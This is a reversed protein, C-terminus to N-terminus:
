PKRGVAGYFPTPLEGPPPPPSGPAHWHDVPVLGPPVPETGDFFRLIQDYTRLVLTFGPQENIRRAAETVENAIIDSTLHSIVLFSGSPVADVFRAVINYPDDEERVHHLIAVSVIAVPQDLDLITKAQQLIADPDRLNANVYATAGKSASKRLTHAHALVVPDDDAYVVRAEPAIRQAIEHTNEETPIGAGIELFQRIGAEGALYAVSRAHFAENAQVAARAHDFGGSGAAAAFDAVERDATFNDDGGRVYDYVRAPHAVDNAIEIPAPPSQRGRGPNHKGAMATGRSSCYPGALTTAESEDLRPGFFFSRVDPPLEARGTLGAARRDWVAANPDLPERRVGLLCAPRM